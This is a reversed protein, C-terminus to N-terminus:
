TNKEKLKDEIENKFRGFLIMGYRDSLDQWEEDTLGVWQRQAAPPNFMAEVKATQDRECYVSVTNDKDIALDAVVMEHGWQTKIPAQHWRWAVTQVPAPQAPPATYLAIGVPLIAAPNITKIVCRGAHLGTVWAVPEQVTPAALAQKIATIAKREKQWQDSSKAGTTELAELALKLAEDKDM